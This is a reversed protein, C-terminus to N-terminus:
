CFIVDTRRAGLKLRDEDNNDIIKYIEKLIEIISEYRLLGSKFIINDKNITDLLEEVEELGAKIEEISKNYQLEEIKMCTRICNEYEEINGKKFKMINDLLYERVEFLEYKLTNNNLITERSEKMTYLAEVFSLIDNYFISRMRKTTKDEIYNEYNEKILNINFLKYLLYNKCDFFYVLKSLSYKSFLKLNKFFKKIDEDNNLDINEVEAIVEFIMYAVEEYTYANNENLLHDALNYLANAGQISFYGNRKEGVRIYKELNLKIWKEYDMVEEYVFTLLDDLIYRDCIYVKDVFMKSIYVFTREKMNFVEEIDIEDIKEKVKYVNSKKSTIKYYKEICYKCYGRFFDKDLRNKKWIIKMDNIDRTRILEYYKNDKIHLLSKDELINKYDLM